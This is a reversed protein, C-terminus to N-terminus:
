ETDSQASAACTRGKGSRKAVYMAKDAAQVLQEVAVPFQRSFAYGMTIGIQIDGFQTCM